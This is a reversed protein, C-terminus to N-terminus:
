TIGFRKKLIEKIGNELEDLNEELLSWVKDAELWTYDHDIRNRLGKLAKWNVLHPFKEILRESSKELKSINEGVQSLQMCIADYDRERKNFLEFSIENKYKKIKHIHVLIRELYVQSSKYNKPSM